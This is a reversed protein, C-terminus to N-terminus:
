LDLLLSLPGSALEIKRPMVADRSARLVLRLSDGDKVLGERTSLAPELTERTVVGDSWLVLAHAAPTWHLDGGRIAVELVFQDKRHAVLRTGLRRAAGLPEGTAAGGALPSRSKAENPLSHVDGQDGDGDRPARPAEPARSPGTVYASFRKPAAGAPPGSSRARSLMPGCFMMSTAGATASRLGLGEVSLGYPLAHPIRVRKMPERPDVSPEEAIAVWSTLRTAIQHRLGIAEVQPDVLTADFGAALEMDLDM